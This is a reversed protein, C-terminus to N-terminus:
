PTERLQVDFIGGKVIYCPDGCSNGYDVLTMEDSDFAIVHNSGSRYEAKVTYEIGVAADLYLETTTATDLWDIEGHIIEGTADLEVDGTYFTLPVAPNEANITLNVILAVTDPRYEFCEGCDTDIIWDEPECGCFNGAIILMFVTMVGTYWFRKHIAM